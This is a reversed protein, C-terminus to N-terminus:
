SLEFNAYVDNVFEYEEGESYYPNEINEESYNEFVDKIDGFPFLLVYIIIMSIVTMYTKYVKSDAFINGMINVAFAFIITVSLTEFLGSLGTM